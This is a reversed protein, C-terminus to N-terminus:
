APIVVKGNADIDVTPATAAVVVADYSLAASLLAADITAPTSSDVEYFQTSKTTGDAATFEVSASFKGARVVKTNADVKYTPTPM